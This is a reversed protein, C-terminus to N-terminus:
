KEEETKTETSKSVTSGEKKKREEKIKNVIELFKTLARERNKAEIKFVGITPKFEGGRFRKIDITEGFDTTLIYEPM